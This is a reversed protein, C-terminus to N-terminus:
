RRHSDARPHNPKRIAHLEHQILRLENHLFSVSEEIDHFFPVVIRHNVQKMLDDIAPRTVEEYFKHRERINDISDDARNRSVLRNMAMKETCGLRVVVIDLPSFINLLQHTQEGYRPFGDIFVFGCKSQAAKMLANTMAERMKAIPAIRGNALENKTEEDTEALQRAIDGANVVFCAQGYEKAFRYVLTSKGSGAMGSMVVILKRM